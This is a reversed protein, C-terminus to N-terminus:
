PRTDSGSRMSPSGAASRSCWTCSACCRALRRQRRRWRRRTMRWRLRWRRTSARPRRRRFARVLTCVRERAQPPPRLLPQRRSARAPRPHSDRPAAQACTILITLVADAASADGVAEDAAVELTAGAAGILRELPKAVSAQGLLEEEEEEEAAAAAEEDDEEEEIAGDARAEEISERLERLADAALRASERMLRGATASASTQLKPLADVAEQLRGVDPATVETGSNAKNVLVATAQLVLCCPGGVVKRVAPLVVSFLTGVWSDYLEIAKELDRACGELHAESPKDQMLFFFARAQQALALGAKCLTEHVEAVPTTVREASSVRTKTAEQARAIRAILDRQLAALATTKGRSSSETSM